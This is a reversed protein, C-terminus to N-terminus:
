FTTKVNNCWKYYQTWCCSRNIWPLSFNVYDHLHSDNEIGLCYNALQKTSGFVKKGKLHPLCNTFSSMSTYNAVVLQLNLLIVRGKCGKWYYNMGILDMILQVVKYINNIWHLSNSLMFTIRILDNICSSCISSWFCFIHSFTLAMSCLNTMSISLMNWALYVHRLSLSYKSFYLPQCWLSADHICRAWKSWKGFITFLNLYSLTM